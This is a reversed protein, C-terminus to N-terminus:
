NAAEGAKEETETNEADRERMLEHLKAVARDIGGVENIIGM